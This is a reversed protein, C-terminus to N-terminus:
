PQEGPSVVPAAPFAEPHEQKHKAWDTPADGYDSFSHGCQCNAWMGFTGDHWSQLGHPITGGGPCSASRTILVHRGHDRGQSSCPPIKAVLYGAERLLAVADDVDSM